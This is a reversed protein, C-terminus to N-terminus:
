ARLYKKVALFSSFGGLFMGVAMITLFIQGFHGTYYTFVNVAGFFRQTAPGLWLTLPYYSVLTILAAIFGCMMGEFVFPGRIYMDTAGVLRMVAIEERSVYIAIRITNFVILVSASVLVISVALGFLQIGDIFQGLREIAMKNDNWNVHAVVSAGDASLTAPDSKLFTNIAEYHSPDTAKIALSARLPNEGLERLAQLEIADDKHREEFRIRAEERSTYVAEKVEPLSALTGQLALIKEELTDTTFYVNVDVKDKLVELSATLMANLFILCGLVFLTITMVVVSSVSVFGNRWFNVFGTKVVRRFALLM